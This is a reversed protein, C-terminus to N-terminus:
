HFFINTIECGFDTNEVTLITYLANEAVRVTYNLTFKHPWMEQTKPSESLTFIVFEDGRQEIKWDSIRAFGHQPGLDWPGFNPFVLPIGGRIAKTGDLKAKNRM